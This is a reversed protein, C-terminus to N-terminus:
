SSWQDIIEASEVAFEVGFTGKISPGDADELNELFVTRWARRSGEWYWGNYDILGEVKWEEFAQDAAERQRQALDRFFLDTADAEKKNEEKIIQEVIIRWTSPRFIRRIIKFSPAFLLNIFVCFRLPILYVDEKPYKPWLAGRLAEVLILLMGLFVEDIFFDIKRQFFDTVKRLNTM